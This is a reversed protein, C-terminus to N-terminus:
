LIVVFLINTNVFLYITSFALRMVSITLPYCAFSDGFTWTYLILFTVLFTLLSFFFHSVFQRSFFITLFIILCCCFTVFEVLTVHNTFPNRHTKTLSIFKNYFISSM